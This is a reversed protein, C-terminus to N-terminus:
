LMVASAKSLDTALQHGNTTPSPLASASCGSCIAHRGADRATIGSM